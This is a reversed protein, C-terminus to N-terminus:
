ILHADAGFSEGGVLRKAICPELVEEFLHRFLKSDHLRGHRNKSFTSHDPVPDSLGLSFFRRLALNLYM